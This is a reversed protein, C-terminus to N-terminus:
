YVASIGIKEGEARFRASSVGELLKVVFLLNEDCPASLTFTLEKLQPDNFEFEVDYWRTLTKVIDELRANDFVFKGEVWATYLSTEVQQVRIEGDSVMAQEGPKLRRCQRGNAVSVAGETLTACLEGTYTSVNFKTGTVVVERTGCIVRFPREANAAVEFYAEGTLHVVREQGTFVVPYTLRSEANLKVTSGDSLVISYFGGRPIVLTNTRGSLRASDRVVYRVNKASDVVIDMGSFAPVIKETTDALLYERGDETRIFAKQLGAVSALLDTDPHRQPWHFFIGIALVAAAATAVALRYLRVLRKQRRVKQMTKEWAVGECIRHCLVVKRAKRYKELMKDFDERNTKQQLFTRFAPDKGTRLPDTLWATLWYIIEQEQEM